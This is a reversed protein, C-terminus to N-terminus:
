QKLQSVTENLTYMDLMKKGGSQNSVSLLCLFTCGGAAKHAQYCWLWGWFIWRIDPSPSSFIFVKLKQNVNREITVQTVQTCSSDLDMSPGSDPRQVAMHKIYAQLGNNTKKPKKPKKKLKMTLIIKTKMTVLSSFLITILDSFLQWTSWASSTPHWKSCTATCLAKKENERAQQTMWQARLFYFKNDPLHKEKM